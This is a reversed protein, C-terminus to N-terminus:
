LIQNDEIPYEPEDAGFLNVMQYPVILRLEDENGLEVKLNWGTLRCLEQVIVVMEIKTDERKLLDLFEPPIAIM